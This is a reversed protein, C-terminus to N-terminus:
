ASEYVGSLMLVEGAVIASTNNYNNVTVITGASAIRGQLMNGSLANGRGSLIYNGAGATAPLSANVGGSATGVTTITITMSVFVTKGIQKYRGSASTTTFTGSSATITPTYATWAAEYGTTKTQLAGINTTNTAINTTNTAINATNTAINATNTAINATNTAIDATNTAIDATATKISSAQQQLAMNQKKPDTELTGPSYVM